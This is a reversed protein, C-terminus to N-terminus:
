KFSRKFVMKETIDEFIAILQEKWDFDFSGYRGIEEGTVNIENENFTVIYQFGPIKLHEHYIYNLTNVVTSPSVAHFIGDHALFDPIERGNRTNNFFVMLDYAAIKLRSQGLAHEKPIEVKISLPLQLIRTGPELSIDFYASQIDQELFIANKLIEQFLARLDSIQKEYEKSESQIDRKVNIIKVELNALMEQIDDVQRLTQVNRELNTKETILQEYTNTISELAGKEELKRYLRSRERELNSVESLIGSIIKELQKERTVLFKNRNEMINKKFDIMEDLTKAVLNGFTTILENYLKKIERTDLDQKIQFSERVKKLKRNHSHYDNLKENIKSTLELIRTEIDKYRELSNHDKLSTELLEINREIKLRESKFEEISKGTDTQIKDILGVRTKKYKDYEEVQESFDYLDTTPLNLLFCNNIITERVRSNPSVFKLPDIRKQNELDDKIFFNMLSRFPEGQHVVKQDKVPFLLNLLIKKLESTSYEWLNQSEEGFYVPDDKKFTRKIRYKRDKVTFELVINHNETRLFDYQPSSFIKKAKESLFAYDILRILSSKGIGNIGTTGKAGSYKGLIINLGPHFEIDKLLLDTESYLRTLM